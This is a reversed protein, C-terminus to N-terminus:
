HIYSYYGSIAESWPIDGHGVRNFGGGWRYGNMESITIVDQGKSNIHRGQEVIAVHGYGGGNAMVAGPTPTGNVALGASRANYAWTSANGWFSGVPRGLQMRREYAYWTCNGWAYRNGASVVGKYSSAAGAATGASWNSNANVGRRGTTPATYGPRENEPLTGGPIILRTGSAVGSALELDNYTVIDDKKGGYKEAVGDLTDGDKTTYLVGDTPLITLTVNPELADSSLNNAWAVTTKQLGYKEAVGDLTDGAQTVYTTASRSDATMNVVQPKSITSSDTRAMMTEVALSQSLNAVNNSVPMNTTDALSSAINAAVVPDVSGTESQVKSLTSATTTSANALAAPQKAIMPQYSTAVLATILLFVGFYSAISSVSLAGRRSRKAATRPSSSNLAKRAMFSLRAKASSDQTNIIMRRSCVRM